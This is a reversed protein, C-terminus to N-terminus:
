ARQSRYAVGYDKKGKRILYLGPLSEQVTIGNQAALRRAEAQSSALGLSVVLAVPDVQQDGGLEVSPLSEILVARDDETLAEESKEFLMGAVRKAQKVAERGHVLDTLEEALMKQVARQHPQEQWSTITEEITEIPQLSLYRLLDAAIADDSNLFFQYFSFASTLSPDLWVTEGDETKGFKKGTRPNVILPFSLAYASEQHRKRILEVGQIINGWQDSGGIQIRCGHQEFLKMFDYAQLLQYSFEAYSIGSERELRSSVSEKDLMSSIGIVKGAERLFEILSVTSLWDANDVMRVQAGDITFFREFQAVMSRKNQEIQALGLIPREADKGSPDGIMSTGGGMLIIVNLGAQVARTLTIVGLLHGVHLSSGTPDFGLYVTAGKELATDAGPSHQYVLNRRQLQQFLEM